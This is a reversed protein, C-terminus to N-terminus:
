FHIVSRFIRINRKTEQFTSMKSWENLRESLWHKQSGTQKQLPLPARQRVSQSQQYRLPETNINSRKRKNFCLVWQGWHTLCSVCLSPCWFVPAIPLSLRICLNECASIFVCAKKQQKKKNGWYNVDKVKEKHAHSQLVSVCMCICEQLRQLDHHIHRNPIEVSWDKWSM